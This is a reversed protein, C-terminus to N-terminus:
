NKSNLRRLWRSHAAAVPVTVVRAEIAAPDIVMLVVVPPGIVANAVAVKVASVVRRVLPVNPVLRVIKAGRSDKDRRVNVRRVAKRSLLRSSLRKPRRHQRRM